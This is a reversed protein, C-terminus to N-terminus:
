RSGSGKGAWGKSSSTRDQLFGPLIPARGPGINFRCVKLGM